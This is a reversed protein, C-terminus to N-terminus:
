ILHSGVGTKDCSRRNYLKCVLHYEEAGQNQGKHFPLLVIHIYAYSYTLNFFMTLIVITGSTVTFCGARSSNVELEKPDLFFWCYSDGHVRTPLELVM